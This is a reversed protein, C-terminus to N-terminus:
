LYWENERKKFNPSPGQKKVEAAESTGEAQVVQQLERNNGARGPISQRQQAQNAGCTRSFERIGSRVAWTSM